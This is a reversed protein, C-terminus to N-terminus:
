AAVLEWQRARPKRTVNVTKANLSIKGTYGTEMKRISRVTRVLKKGDVIVTSKAASKSAPKKTNM